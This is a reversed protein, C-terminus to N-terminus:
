STGSSLGNGIGLVVAAMALSVVDDTFPIALTGCAMVVMSPVAVWIRGHVDMVKGAPYFLLMDVAGSLGFVLATATPDLGVREAWLPVAALRAARVAGVLMTAAGLTRLARTNARVVSRVTTAGPARPRHRSVDPLSLLLVAAVVAAAAHTWYAGDPGTLSTAGAGAFPGIFMGIRQTGALTSLARARMRPPIAETLYSQRALGWVTSSLGTCLVAAGLMWVSSAVTCTLLAVVVLGAALLMARREGIRATLSGAPLDGLLQGLGQLAVVLSAVAVSAGLDRATLAIIPAIAGQGVAFLLTPGFVSPGVSRLTVAPAPREQAPPEPLV